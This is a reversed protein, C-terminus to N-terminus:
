FTRGGTGSGIAEGFESYVSMALVLEFLARLTRDTALVIEDVVLVKAIDDLPPDGLHSPYDVSTQSVHTGGVNRECKRPHLRFHHAPAQYCLNHRGEIRFITKSM